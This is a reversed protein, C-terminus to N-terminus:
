ENKLDSPKRRSIQIKGPRVLSHDPLSVDLVSGAMLKSNSGVEIPGILTSGPGVHVRTGLVPYGTEGTEPHRGAGLTVNQFLLCAESVVAGSGVVIGNGHIIAIGPAIAADPHIDAGFLHRLLRSAVRSGTPHGADKLFQMVRVGLLLQLGIDHLLLRATSTQDGDHQIEYRHKPRQIDKLVRHRFHAAASVLNRLRSGASPKKIKLLYAEFDQIAQSLSSAEARVGRYYQLGYSLTVMSIGLKKLGLADLREASKLTQEGWTRTLDPAAVTALLLFRSVPNVMFIFSWPDATDLDSHKKGIRSDYVGYDFARALWGSKEDHDSHHIVYAEESWVRTRDGAHRMLKELRIGIEKDESRRLTPDFGGVADYDSKRLSVNGTWFNGKAPEGRRMRAAFRAFQHAHFREFVPRTHINEPPRIDGLVVRAGTQHADLHAGLFPTPIWMDDDVIVIIEGKARQIGAHRAAAQGANRQEFVVLHFPYSLQMLKPKVPDASGDDVVVVEFREPPLSQAKLADLLALLGSLRNYTSIVVSIQPSTKKLSPIDSKKAIPPM